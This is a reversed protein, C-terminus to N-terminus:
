KSRATIVDDAVNKPAESYHKFEMTYTARGQTLSRLSTAYGFMEALPVEAKIIKGGGMIDDMGQVIGRRSSLDGMVTGAYDEPTEVEVAMMPELLVPSAKRLGEKFAMSGAMKFANENSDVDHYSGFFLTVKVDVIPYGALVGSPLTEQIGKDVAPIYERPVVGGKIADVFQYGEGPSLPEVKLVVHGYQGRGGSQKIFKGEAEECTKRITERYAVQPRGVNAEVGFERKMRDVLIELHLEGMGSIITQGSEEDSRVRFSPDEQALRSLAMGMREQDSKSKPEVAQSIVPEPFVMKELTIHSDLDCLTEGTTVEKLGVVAAIDGSLVEKIEERNNAHMQLLRGIREKKGKIPNFITDGSKLVGSYVRIFTLQGVFPDSMLKFALASLKEKDDAKRLIENGDDDIGSVPPIDIPSPLYDIVADLMRQVGKNKFASGCLMPQIECAITRARIASNIDSEDLNGTELYKNTLDESFEAAVELLNERWKEVQDKLDPSIEQYSFKTGQNKEDWIISKMKVLDVVGMFKDESGIPIVIPVPNARLRLKLQDYVKFFNAGTRDMKNVFALRPVKYKNAQRWVTESQPQVGGVACYVMCAGDLVRMSREVEITFDVHGPTDIINIRHEPYNNAMGKWFATTAASTITIGREQEQEMWDMTAAGDHVEGIKHNVGTYFLIRETTTTKGADIHASIGINRYYEVSTKRSM